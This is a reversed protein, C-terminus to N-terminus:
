RSGQPNGLIGPYDIYLHTIQSWWWQQDLWTYDDTLQLLAHVVM